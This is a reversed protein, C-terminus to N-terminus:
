ILFIMDFFIFFFFHYIFLSVVFKYLFFMESFCFSKKHFHGFLSFTWFPSSVTTDINDDIELDIDLDDDDITLPRTSSAPKTMAKEPIMSKAATAPATAPTKSSETASIALDQLRDVMTEVPKTEIESISNVGNKYQFAGSQEAVLM